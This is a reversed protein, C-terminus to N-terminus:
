ETLFALDIECAPVPPGSASSIYVEHLAGDRNLYIPEDIDVFICNHAFYSLDYRGVLTPDEDADCLFICTRGWTLQGRYQLDRLRLAEQCSYYQKWCGAGEYRDFPVDDFVMVHFRRHLEHSQM